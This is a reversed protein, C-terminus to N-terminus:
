TQFAIRELREVQELYVPCMELMQADRVIREERQASEACQRVEAGEVNLM